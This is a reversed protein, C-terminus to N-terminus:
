GRFPNLPSAKSVTGEPDRIGRFHSDEGPKQNLSITSSNSSESISSRMGASCTRQLDPFLNKRIGKFHAGSARRTGPCAAPWASISSGGVPLGPQLQPWEQYSRAGPERGARKPQLDLAATNHDNGSTVLLPCGPSGPELDSTTIGFFFFFPTVQHAWGHEAMIGVTTGGVFPREGFEGM